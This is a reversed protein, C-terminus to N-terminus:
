LFTVTGDREVKVAKIRVNELEPHFKVHYPCYITVYGLGDDLPIIENSFKVQKVRRSAKLPGYGDKLFAEKLDDLTFGDPYRNGLSKLICPITTAM